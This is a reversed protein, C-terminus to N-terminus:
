SHDKWRRLAAFREAPTQVHGYEDPCQDLITPLQARLFPNIQKQKGITTPLTPNGDARIRLTDALAAKIAPNDPEVHQAFRLNSETYEHTCYVLTHDDHEALRSLSQWMQEPTGEFLRGCGANFLTDGTFMMADSVYCIHDLTHGPTTLVQFSVDFVAINDDNNLPHSIGEFPSNAPGYVPAAPFHQTLEKVGTTHDWHHHTILIGGLTLGASNLSELVVRADGPDVVFAQKATDSTILWIYNDKFAPIPKVQLM